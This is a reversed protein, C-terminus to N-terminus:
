AGLNVGTQIKIPGCNDKLVDQNWEGPSEGLGPFKGDISRECEKCLQCFHRTFSFLSFLISHQYQCCPRAEKRIEWRQVMSNAILGKESESLKDPSMITGLPAFSKYEQEHVGQCKRPDNGVGMYSTVIRDFNAVALSLLSDVACGRTRSNQLYYMPSTELPAFVQVAEDTISSFVFTGGVIVAPDDELITVVIQIPDKEGTM